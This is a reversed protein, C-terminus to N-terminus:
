RLNTQLTGYSRTSKWFRMSRTESAGTRADCRKPNPRLPLWARLSIPPRLVARLRSCNPVRTKHSTPSIPLCIPPRVPPPEPQPIDDNPKPM